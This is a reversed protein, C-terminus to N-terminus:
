YKDIVDAKTQYHVRFGPTKKYYDHVHWYNARNNDFEKQRRIAEDFTPRRWEMMVNPVAPPRKSGTAVWKFWCHSQRTWAPRSPDDCVWYLKAIKEYQEQTLRNEM